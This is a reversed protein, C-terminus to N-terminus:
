DETWYDPDVIGARPTRVVRPASRKTVECVTVVRDHRERVCGDCVNIELYYHPDEAAFNCPDWLTSGYNGPSTFHLGGSPPTNIGPVEGGEAVLPTSSTLERGCVFCPLPFEM